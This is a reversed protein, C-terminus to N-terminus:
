ALRRAPAPSLLFHSPRLSFPQLSFLFATIIGLSRRVIEMFRAAWCCSWVCPWLKLAEVKLCETKL